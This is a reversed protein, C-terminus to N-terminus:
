QGRLREYLWVLTDTHRQPSLADRLGVAQSATVGRPANVVSAIERALGAVDRPKVMRAGYEPLAWDTIGAGGYAIVPTGTLLAEPGVMGFTEPWLSPVVVVAAGAVALTLKAPELPGLFRTRGAIGLEDALLRLRALAPGAGAIHVEHPSDVRASARLLHHMGKLVMLRGAALVVPPGDTAPPAPTADAAPESIPPPIVVVRDAPLGDAILMQRQWTSPAIVSQCQALLRLTWTTYALGGALAGLGYSQEDATTACGHRHYGRTLCYRGVAHECIREQAYHFRAGNPCVPVHCTAFTPLQRLLFSLLMPRPWLHLHAALPREAVLFSGLRRLAQRLKPSPHSAFLAPERLEAAFPDSHALPASQGHVILIEWGAAALAQAEARMSRQSGGLGDPSQHVFIVRRSGSSM